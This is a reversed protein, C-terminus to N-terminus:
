GYVYSYGVYNDHGYPYLDVAFVGVGGGCLDGVKRGLKEKEDRYDFEDVVGDGKRKLLDRLRKRVGKSKQGKKPGKSAVRWGGNPRHRSGDHIFTFCESASLGGPLKHVRSVAAIAKGLPMRWTTEPTAVFLSFKAALGTVLNAEVIEDDRRFKQWSPTGNGHKDQGKM